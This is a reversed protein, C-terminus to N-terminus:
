HTIVAFMAMMVVTAFNTQGIHIAEGSALHICSKKGEVLVQQRNEPKFMELAYNPNQRDRQDFMDNVITSM